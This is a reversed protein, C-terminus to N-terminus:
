IENWGHLTEVEVKFNFKFVKKFVRHIAEHLKM